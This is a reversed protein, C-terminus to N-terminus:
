GDSGPPAEVQCALRSPPALRALESPVSRRVAHGYRDHADAVIPATRQPRGARRSPRGGAARPAASALAASTSPPAARSTRPPRRAREAAVPRPRVARCPQTTWSAAAASSTAWSANRAASGRAAGSRGRAAREARPQVADHDVPRDVVGARAFPAALDGGLRGALQGCREALVDGRAGTAGLHQRRQRAGAGSCRATMTSRWRRSKVGPSIAAASSSGRPVTSSTAQSTTEVAQLVVQAPVRGHSARPRASRSCRPRDRGVGLAGLERSRPPRRLGRQRGLVGAAADRRGHDGSGTRAAAPRDRQARRRPRGGGRRAPRAGDVAQTCRTTAPASTAGAGRGDSPAAAPRRAGARSPAGAAGPDDLRSPMAGASAPTPGPRRPRRAPTRPRRARRRPQARHGRAPATAQDSVRARPRNRAARHDGSPQRM